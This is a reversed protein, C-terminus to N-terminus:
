DDRRVADLVPGLVGRVEVQQLTHPVLGVAERHLIVARESIVHRRRQVRHGADAGLRPLSQEVV